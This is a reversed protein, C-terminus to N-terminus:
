VHDGAAGDEGEQERQQDREAEAGPKDLMRVVAVAVHGSVAGNWGRDVDLYAVAGGLYRALIPQEAFGGAHLGYAQEVGYDRRDEQETDPSVDDAAIASAALLQVSITFIM